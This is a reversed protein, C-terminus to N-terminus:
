LLFVLFNPIYRSVLVYQLISHEFHKDEGVYEKWDDHHDFM